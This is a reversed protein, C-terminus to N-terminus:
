PTALATAIRRAFDWRPDGLPVCGDLRRARVITGPAPEAHFACDPPATFAYEGLGTGSSRRDTAVAAAGTWVFVV